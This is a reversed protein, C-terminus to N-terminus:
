SGPEWNVLIHGTRTDVKEVVQHIFPVLENKEGVVMVQNAGTEILRNLRGMSEGGVTCVTLGILDVWYFEGVGTKPFQSRPIYVIDNRYKEAETRDDIKEFSVILHQGSRSVRLLKLKKKQESNGLWWYKYNSLSDPHDSYSRVKLGGKLGYPPGIKGM